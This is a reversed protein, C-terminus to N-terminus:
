KKEKSNQKLLNPLKQKFRKLRPISINIIYPNEPNLKEYNQHYTEAKYFKDFKKVETVIKGHYKERNLKKIAEVITKREEKNEYFAISRYQSGFDPYQGNVTTPNHSAFFVAVLDKFSVKRPNYYVAVTEAHGTKGTNTSAYTPNTTHGGSYGSVVEEVGKVSEYIAEVCWFCGSAFYATKLHQKQANVTVSILMLFLLVKKMKFIKYKTTFFSFFM